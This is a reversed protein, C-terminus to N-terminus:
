PSPPHPSTSLESRTLVLFGENALVTRWNGPVDAAFLCIADDRGLHSRLAKLSHLTDALTPLDSRVDYYVADACRDARWECRSFQCTEIQGILYDVDQDFWDM